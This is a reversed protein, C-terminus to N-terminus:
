ASENQRASPRYRCLQQSPKLDPVDRVGAYLLLVARGLRVAFGPRPRGLVVRTRTASSHLLSTERTSSGEVKEVAGAFRHLGSLM